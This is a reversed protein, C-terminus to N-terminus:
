ISSVGLMRRYESMMDWGTLLSPPHRATFIRGTRDILLFPWPELLPDDAEDVALAAERYRENPVVRTPQTPLDLGLEGDGLPESDLRV